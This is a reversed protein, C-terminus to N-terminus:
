RFPHAYQANMAALGLVIMLEDAAVKTEIRQLGRHQPYLKSIQRQPGFSPPTMRLKVPCFERPQFEEFLDVNRRMSRPMNVILEYDPAGSSIVQLGKQALAPDFGFHVVWHREM